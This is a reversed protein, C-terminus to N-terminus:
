SALHYANTEVQKSAAKSAKFNSISANFRRCACGAGRQVGQEVGDEIACEFSFECSGKAEAGKRLLRLTNLFAILGGQVYGVKQSRNRFTHFLM